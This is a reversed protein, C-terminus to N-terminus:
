FGDNKSCAQLVTVTYNQEFGSELVLALGDFVMVKQVRKWCQLQTAKSLVRDWFLDWVGRSRGRSVIRKIM